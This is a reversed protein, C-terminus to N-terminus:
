LQQMTEVGWVFQFDMTLDFNKYSFNNIWSGTWDPMGKGIIEKKDTRKARGVQNLDCLGNNYDEQTYVGLRRYGYFASMNEGGESATVAACFFEISIYLLVAVVILTIKRKM